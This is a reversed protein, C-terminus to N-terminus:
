SHRVSYKAMKRYLTMRSWALREAAKSKNWRTAMLAALLRERENGANNPHTVRVHPPLDSAAILGPAGLVFISELINKLERINGPWPYRVLSAWAEDTLGSVAAGFERNLDAIYHRSIAAIDEPRQRLPPVDVRAVNLRFLLDQRFHGSAALSDLDRHTASLVRVDVREPRRGGLACVERTEVVRLIKAQASASMDGIEDFFITGGHADKLKGASGSVAGTFAGREYGFLESEVLADPIAACNISVLRRDARDSLEHISRAVLEKGTGTEGTILVNSRVRAMRAVVTRLTTMAASDGLLRSDPPPAPALRAVADVLQGPTVPAALYEACGSRLAEIALSECSNDAIFVIPTGARRVTRVTALGISSGIVCASAQPLESGPDWSVAPVDANALWECWAHRISPDRDAVAVVDRGSGSRVSSLTRPQARM